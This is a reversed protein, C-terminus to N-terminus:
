VVLLRHFRNRKGIAELADFVSNGLDSATKFMQASQEKDMFRLVLKEEAEDTRQLFEEYRGILEQIAPHADSCDNQQLLWELRATPSLGIMEVADTPSVTGNRAFVALLYLLASYCTLLRSHKLKYNKLKRKAKKDPPDSQTRAEYNVCFTRWMRLIDNALFGPTFETKHDQYDRWYASIVKQTIQHYAREGLLPSSELLLLLRATFTNNADDEPTGLSKILETETHHTLYEGGGSFDQIKLERITEILDAKILIEDLPALAPKEPTGEGVIFIDLDSYESAEGRAFSGTAYVCVKDGCLKEAGALREQLGKIREAARKRRRELLEGVGGRGNFSM